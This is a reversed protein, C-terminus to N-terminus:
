PLRKCTGYIALTVLPMMWAVVHHQHVFDNVVELLMGQCRILLRSKSPNLLNRVLLIATPLELVFQSPNLGSPIETILDVRHYTPPTVAYPPETAFMQCHKRFACVGTFRHRRIVHNDTLHRFFVMPTHCFPAQNSLFLGLKKRYPRYLM